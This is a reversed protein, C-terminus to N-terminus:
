KKFTHQVKDDNYVEIDHVMFNPPLQQGPPGVRSTGSSDTIEMRMNPAVLEKKIQRIKELALRSEQDRISSESVNATNVSTSDENTDIRCLEAIKHTAKTLLMEIVVTESQFTKFDYLVNGDADYFTVRSDQGLYVYRQLDDKDRLCCKIKVCGRSDAEEDFTSVDRVDCNKCEFISVVRPSSKAPKITLTHLTATNSCKDCTSEVTEVHAIGSGDMPSANRQKLEGDSSGSIIYPVDLMYFFDLTMLRASHIKLSTNPLGNFCIANDYGLVINGNVYSATRITKSFELFDVKEYSQNYISVINQQVILILNDCRRIHNAGSNALVKIVEHNTTEIASIKHHESTILTNSFYCMENIKPSCQYMSVFKGHITWVVLKGDADATYLNTDSFDFAIIAAGPTQIGNVHQLKRDGTCRFIQLEQDLFGVAVIVESSTEKVKCIRIAKHFQEINYDHTKLNIIAMTLDLSGTFLVLAKPALASCLIRDQHPRLAKVLKFTGNELITDPPYFNPRAGYRQRGYFNYPPVDPPQRSYSPSARRRNDYEVRELPRIPRPDHLLGTKPTSIIQMCRQKEAMIKMMIAEIRHIDSGTKLRGCRTDIIKTFMSILEVISSFDAKSTDSELQAERKFVDLTENYKYKLLYDAILNKVTKHVDSEDKERSAYEYQNM